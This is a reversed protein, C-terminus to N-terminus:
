YFMFTSKTAMSHPMHRYPALKTPEHVSLVFWKLEFSCILMGARTRAFQAGCMTFDGRRDKHWNSGLPRNLCHVM